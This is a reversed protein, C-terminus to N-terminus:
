YESQISYPHPLTGLFYLDIIKLEVKQTIGLAPLQNLIVGPLEPLTSSVVVQYISSQLHPSSRM